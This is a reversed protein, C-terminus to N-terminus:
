QRKCCFMVALRNREGEEGCSVSAKGAPLCQADGYGGDADEKHLVIHCDIEDHEIAVRELEALLQEFLLVAAFVDPRRLLFFLPTVFTM